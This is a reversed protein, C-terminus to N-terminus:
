TVLVNILMLVGATRLGQGNERYTYPAQPRAAEEHRFHQPAIATRHISDTASLGRVKREEAEWESPDFVNKLLKWEGVEPAFVFSDPRLLRAFYWQKLTFLDPLTHEQGDLTIAKYSTSM